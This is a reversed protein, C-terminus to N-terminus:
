LGWQVKTLGDAPMALHHVWRISGDVERLDQRAIQVEIATRRDQGELTDKSLYDYLSKADVVALAEKLAGETRESSMVTLEKAELRKRWDKVNFKGDQIEQMLVMVWMLEALGRSLSQNEAALTSNVARQLKGSRWAVINTTASLGDRLGSEHAIVLRGGQSHFGNNAFSPDTIVSMRMKKLPQIQLSLTAKQKLEAVAQNLQIIDEVVLKSLKSAMLSSPGAADPRGERSLWNLAGFTARAM